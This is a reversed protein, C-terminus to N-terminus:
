KHAYKGGQLIDRVVESAIVLGFSGTVASFSGLAKCKPEEPSFVVKIKAKRAIKKLNERFKRAFKDGHSKWVNAVQIRTPDLKKASGTSVIYRGYPKQSAIRALAVKAPIDDIADIIYDYGLIDHTRLFEEDVRARFAIVGPYKRALVEVKPEGVSESGIQRNQNTVDFSDSDVITIEGVGSRYLCDLVFSGVGGVGFLIVRTRQLAEFGEGFLIRSRTFRDESMMENASVIESM